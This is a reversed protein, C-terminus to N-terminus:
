YLDFLLECLFTSWNLVVIQSIPNLKCFVLKNFKANEIMKALTQLLENAYLYDGTPRSLFIASIGKGSYIEFNNMSVYMAILGAAGHDSFYVFVNDDATSDIM